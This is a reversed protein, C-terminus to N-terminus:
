KLMEIRNKQQQYCDPQRYIKGDKVEITGTRGRFSFQLHDPHEIFQQSLTWADGGFALLRQFAMNEPQKRYAEIVDTWQGNYLAPVDCFHLGVPIPQGEEISLPTAYINKEPLKGLQTLWQYDGLLLLGEKKSLKKPLQEVVQIDSGSENILAMMFLETAAETGTQRLVLLKSIHEKKLLQNLAVADHQKALSFQWVNSAQNNMDNLALVPVKSNLQMVREIDSRALPGVVLKTKKNVKTKFINDISNKESDVFIVKEKSGSAAYASMYGRKISDAARAMAGSEPLIVLVDAYAPHIFAALILLLAYKKSNM